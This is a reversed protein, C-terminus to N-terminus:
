VGWVSWVGGVSGVCVMCGGVSGVCVMCGRCEGCLGYM